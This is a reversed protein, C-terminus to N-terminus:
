ASMWGVHRAYSYDERQTPKDSRGFGVFDPAVARHGAEAFLPIMKRYLFSWTPQGHLCLITEGSDPHRQGEDVHHVRLKGGEGDPVETYHPAFPYGTLNEFSEDPTRVVDM